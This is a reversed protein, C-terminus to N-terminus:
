ENKPIFKYTRLILINDELDDDLGPCFNVFDLNVSNKVRSSLSKHYHPDQGWQDGKWIVKNNDVVDMSYIEWQDKIFNKLRQLTYFNCVLNDAAVIPKEEAIQQIKEKLGCAEYLSLFSNVPFHDETQGRWKSLKDFDLEVTAINNIELKTNNEKEM